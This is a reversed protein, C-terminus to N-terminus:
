SQFVVNDAVLAVEDDNGRPSEVHSGVKIVSAHGIIAREVVAGAEVRANPLLVSNRVITGEGIFVNASLVCNEVKGYVQCGEGLLSGDVEGNSGIYHPPGTGDASYVPWSPDYIDLGKDGNLLDMSAQWYSNVTGVDRWYGHFPYAYLSIKDALMAPIVDRGFDHSSQVSQIDRRLYTLLTQCDFLYIGMSAQNNAPQDPKEVFGVIRGNEQTNIIGFRSAETWPVEVVGITVAAQVAKHYDVMLSYNMKYIHDGSLVQVFRPSYRELFDINQYIADATGSYWEGGDEKMYPGLVHLGGFKRDMNWAGGAGLHNNLELPRYQTLVGVTDIGSNYCNSLTFDIIRYKAGFPVAPKAMRSTLGSLRSGQGGALLMAVCEKRYM